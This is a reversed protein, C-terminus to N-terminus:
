KYDTAKHLELSTSRLSLVHFCDSRQRLRLFLEGELL